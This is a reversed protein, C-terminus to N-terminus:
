TVPRLNGAREQIADVNVDLYRRDFVPIQGSFTGTFIRFGDFSPNVRGPINLAIAEGALTKVAVSLHGGPMQFFVTLDALIRFAQQFLGDVLQAKRGSSVGADEFDGPGYGIEIAQFRDARGM